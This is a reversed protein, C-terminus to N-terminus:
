SNADGVEPTQKEQAKSEMKTMVIDTLKFAYDCADQPTLRQSAGNLAACLVKEMFQLSRDQMIFDNLQMKLARNEARIGDLILKEGERM